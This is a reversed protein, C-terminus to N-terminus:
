LRVVREEKASTTAALRAFEGWPSITPAETSEQDGSGGVLLEIFLRVCPSLVVEPSNM